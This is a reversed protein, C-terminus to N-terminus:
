ITFDKIKWKSMCAFWIPPTASFPFNPSWPYWSKSPYRGYGMKGTMSFFLTVVCLFHNGLHLDQISIQMHDNGLWLNRVSHSLGQLVFFSRMQFSNQCCQYKFMLCNKTLSQSSLLWWLSASSIIIVSDRLIHTYVAAANSYVQNIDLRKELELESQIGLSERM